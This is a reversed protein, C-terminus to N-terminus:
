WHGEVDANEVAQLDGSIIKEAVESILQADVLYIKTGAKKLVNFAKPGMHVTVAADAGTDLINQAAQIGAGQAAQLNQNNDVYLVAKSESDYVVFGAARGFRTSVISDLGKNSDVAFAIKM